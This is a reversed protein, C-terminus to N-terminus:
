RAVNGVLPRRTGTIMLWKDAGVAITRRDVTGRPGSRRTTIVLRDPKATTAAYLSVDLEGFPSAASRPVIRHPDIASEYLVASRDVAVPLVLLLRELQGDPLLASVLGGADLARRAVAARGADAPAGPAPGDGVAQELDSSCVD